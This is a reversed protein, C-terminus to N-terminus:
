QLSIVVGTQTQVGGVNVVLSVDGTGIGAPVTLNIQYLGAGSLGAFSPVVNVNNIQLKLSSTIPAAGTFAQGAPVVPNTPGLGGAFLEVLDGAKAAVTPYGLSNGTPGIVDYTGGGFAGSGNSRLIIGAVHKSDLLLFSPGFQALTVSSTVTGGPTTVVVPVSGTTTDDPAQFNIQTPSVYWLYASKGNVKVTVGGLANPFNGTWTATSSALNKGYISAWGGPQITNVTSYVPVIGGSSIAAAGAPAPSRIFGHLLGNPDAFMGAINGSSNMSGALTGAILSASATAAGPVDIPATITGDALRVFGHLISNTDAYFGTIDGAPDMGFPATGGFFSGASAAAAGPADFTTITGSAARVFGHFVHVQSVYLGAIYGATDIGTAITGIFSFNHSAGGSGGAGAVDIPATIPGGAARVFAHTGGNADEYYGTVAGAANISMPTTGQTLGTGAGTVDFATITGNAGRIFGHRVADAADYMGTIDGGTNISLPMTGRHGAGGAGPADFTAITGGAARVFGHYVNNADFYMGAVDGATNISMPFTGENRGAGAGPVDFTNIAGSAARVFGHAVNNAVLYFGTVAGGDNISIAVTGESAGTGAQSVDFSTFSQACAVSGCFWVACVVLHAFGSRSCSM